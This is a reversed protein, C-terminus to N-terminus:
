QYIRASFLLGTFVYRPKVADWNLFALHEVSHSHSSLHLKLIGDFVVCPKSAVVLM